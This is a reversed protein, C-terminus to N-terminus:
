LAEDIIMIVFPFVTFVSWIALHYPLIQLYYNVTFAGGVLLICLISHVIEVQRGSFRQIHESKLERLDKYYQVNFFTGKGPLFGALLMFNKFMYVSSIGLLFYSLGIYLKHTVDATQEIQQNSFVRYINDAAFLMMMIASWISLTLRSSRSLDSYTFAHYISYLTFFAAFVVCGQLFLHNSQWLRHDIVWYVLAMSQMLTIGETLKPTVKEEHFVASILLFFGLFVYPWIEIHSQLQYAAEHKGPMFALFSFVLAGLMMFFVNIIHDSLRSSEFFVGSLLATVGIPIIPNQIATGPNGYLIWSLFLMGLLILYPSLTGQSSKTRRM